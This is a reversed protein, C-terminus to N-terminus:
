QESLWRRAAEEDTIRDTASVEDRRLLSTIHNKAEALEGEPDPEVHLANIGEVVRVPGVSGSRDKVLMTFPEDGAWRAIVVPSNAILQSSGPVANLAATITKPADEPMEILLPQREDDIVEEFDPYPRQDTPGMYGGLAARARIETGDALRVDVEDKAYSLDKNRGVAMLHARM